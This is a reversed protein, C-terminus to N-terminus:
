LCLNKVELSSLSSSVVGNSRVLLNPPNQLECRAGNEPVPM